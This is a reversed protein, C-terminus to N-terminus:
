FEIIKLSQNPFAVALPFNQNRVITEIELKVKSKSEEKSPLCIIIDGNGDPTVEDIYKKFNEFTKVVIRLFRFNGTEIYHRKGIIPKLDIVSGLTEDNIEDDNQLHRNLVADLDFDSAETVHFTKSTERYLM